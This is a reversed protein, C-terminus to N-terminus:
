FLGGRLGRGWGARVGACECGKGIREWHVLHGRMRWVWGAYAATSVAVAVWSGAALWIFDQPQHVVIAAVNQALEFAAAFSYEVGAFASRQSPPTMTQTLQQTTLDYVWLGLRSLSLFTFLALAPLLHATLPSTPSLFCSLLPLLTPSSTPTSLSWLAFVVPVLNILQWTIGWLGLRELGTETNGQEEHPPLEGDLLGTMSDGRRHDRGRYLSHSHAKSLYHVGVPTVVTSSIEVVSGAARALTILDLSFGVDLLYTVFIAGYSLTSIHLFALAMSPIWVESSFYNRFDQAYRQLGQLASNVIRRNDREVLPQSEASGDGHAAQADVAKPARLRPNLLWVRKACWWEVGWSAASMLGVVLVGIRVGAVSVVVSILIPALLKCALDIRRMISNLHTLDYAHGDPAAAAVVWDREMSLM